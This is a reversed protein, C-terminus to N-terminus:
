SKKLDYLFAKKAQIVRRKLLCVFEPIKGIKSTTYATIIPCIDCNEKEPCLFCNKKPTAYNEMNLQSYRSLVKKYIKDTNKSFKELDGFLFRGAESNKGKLKYYESFLYCGWIQGNPTVSLRDKGGACYFIGRNEPKNIYERLDSFPMLGENKYKNLLITNLKNLEEELVPIASDPWIQNIALSFNINKVGLNMILELSKSLLHVNKWSFVSNVSLKISPSEIVKKILNLTPSFSGKKRQSDQALGDFSLTLTFRNKEFFDIIRTNILSGNTTISFHSIKDENFHHLFSVINRILSFNLLPEGGYFSIYFEKTLYPM